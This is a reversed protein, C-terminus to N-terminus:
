AGKPLSRLAAPHRARPDNPLEAAGPEAAEQLLLQQARPATSIGLDAFMQMSALIIAQQTNMFLDYDADLMTYVIEYEIYDQTYKSLHARDFRVKEHKGIIGAIATPVRSAAAPPTDPHARLNYVIRRTVMRKYNAVTNKLLEANSIVIQEGSQARIRTTKLGVKEVTGSIDGMAIFDGVEFPKDLAISLSAFLDGLVNQVALAIAIGGIGLSAVFTTINVGLNALLALAFIVWVSTQLVWIILTHAVTVQADVGGHGRDHTLFYRKATVKIASHLYIALQLGVTVFWLHSVRANWPPPLDLASLGILISTAFVVLNSTRALTRRLIEAVPRHAWEDSLQDLRRRFLALAGHIVLFSVVALALAFLANPLTINLSAIYGRIDM